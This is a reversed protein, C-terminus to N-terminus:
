MPLWLWLTDPHYKVGNSCWRKQWAKRVAQGRQCIAEKVVSSRGKSPGIPKLDRGCMVSNEMGASRDRFVAGVDKAMLQQLCVSLKVCEQPTPSQQRLPDLTVRDHRPM